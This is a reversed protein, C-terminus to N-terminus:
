PVDALHRIPLGTVLNQPKMRLAGDATMALILYVPEGALRDLVLRPDPFTLRYLAVIRGNDDEGLAGGHWLVDGLRTAEADLGVYWSLAVDRLEIVPEIAVKTRLLHAIWREIVAGLAALGRRGATVDLAMDFLDSRGWYSAANADDLVDVGGALPLGLMAVLPSEGAAAVHEDDAAILSGDHSTLRQTRFFFEAARLLFADDAEDLMNRLIVHVLQDLFLPPVRTGERVLATYAAEVTDHALLHDRFAIMLQWNERADADAIAAIEGAAVPRRPDGLLAGYLAREAAGADPPPALEPRALYAKLFEDTLTLRGDADRDLLHHGCSLWFDNM